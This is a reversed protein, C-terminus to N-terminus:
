NDLNNQFKNRTKFDALQQNLQDQLRANYCWKQYVEENIRYNIGNSYTDYVSESTIGIPLIWGYWNDGMVSIWNNFTGLDYINGLDNNTLTESFQYHFGTRNSDASRNWRQQEYEITTQNKLVMYILFGAFLSVAFSFAISLIFLVILNISIMDENYKGSSIFDYIMTATVIFIFSAYIAIYCLFQVFFKQNKFGICVSFWPCHHDMRLICRNEASCHHSRDPKWVSCKTCYRYGSRGFNHLNMIDLPPNDLISSARSGISEERETSDYPSSSTTEYSNQILLEPFDMPSGAGVMIIKYYTYISLLYLLLGIADITTALKPLEYDHRIQGDVTFILVLITWTLIATCMVKPFLSALFCCFGPLRAYMSRGLM